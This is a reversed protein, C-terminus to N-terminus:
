RSDVGKGSFLFRSRLRALLSRQPSSTGLQHEARKDASQRPVQTEAMRPPKGARKPSLQAVRSLAAVAPQQYALGRLDRELREECTTQVTMQIEKDPRQGKRRNRDLRIQVRECGLNVLLIKRVALLKKRCNRPDEM